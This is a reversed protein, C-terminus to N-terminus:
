FRVCCTKANPRLDLGIDFGIIFILYWVYVACFSLVSLDVTPGDFHVYSFLNLMEQMYSFAIKENELTTQKQATVGYDAIQMM